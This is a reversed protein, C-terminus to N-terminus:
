EWWTLIVAGSAGDSYLGGGTGDVGTSTTGDGKKGGVGFSGYVATTTNSGGALAGLLPTAAGKTGAPNGGTGDSTNNANSFASNINITADMNASVGYNFSAGSGGGASVAGATSIGGSSGMGTASATIGFDYNRNTNGFSISLNTASTTPASGRTGKAGVTITLNSTLYMQTSAIGGSGGAGGATINSFDFNLPAGSVNGAVTRGNQGFFPSNWTGDFNGNAGTNAAFAGGAGGGIVQVNVLLPKSSGYGTPLTFTGSSTFKQYKPALATATAAPIQQIAM